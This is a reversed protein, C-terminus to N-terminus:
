GRHRCQEDLRTREGIGGIGLAQRLLKSVPAVSFDEHAIIHDRAAAHITYADTGHGVHGIEIADDSRQFLDADAIRVECEISRQTERAPENM